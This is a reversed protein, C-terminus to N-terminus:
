KVEVPEILKSRGKTKNHLNRFFATEGTELYIFLDKQFNFLETVSVDLNFLKIIEITQSMASTRSIVPQIAEKFAQTRDFGYSMENWKKNAM